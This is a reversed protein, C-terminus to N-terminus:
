QKLKYFGSTITRAQLPIHALSSFDVLGIDEAAIPFQIQIEIRLEALRTGSPRTKHKWAQRCRISSLYGAPQLMLIKWVLRYVHVFFVVFIHIHYFLNWDIVPDDMMSVVITVHFMFPGLFQHFISAAICAICVSFQDISYSRLAYRPELSLLLGPIVTM